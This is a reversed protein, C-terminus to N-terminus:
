KFKIFTVNRTGDHNLRHSCFLDNDKFTDYNTLTIQGPPVGLNILQARNLGKNDLLYHTQDTKHYFSSTDFSMQKVLDIVDDQVELSDFGLSPGIYGYIHRPDVHFEAMLKKVTHTTIQAVTGKWGSHIAAIIRKDACYLMIPTCDAHFSLLVLDDQCILADIGDLKGFHGTVNTGGHSLGVVLSNATHKQLPAVLKAPPVNLLAALIDCNILRNNKLHCSGLAKTTTGVVVAPHLDFYKIQDM